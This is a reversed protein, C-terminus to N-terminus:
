CTGTLHSTVSNDCNLGDASCSGTAMLFVVSITKMFLVQMGLNTYVYMYRIM